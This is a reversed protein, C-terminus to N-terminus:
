LGKLESKHGMDPFTGHQDTLRRVQERLTMVVAELAAIEWAQNAETARLAWIYRMAIEHRRELPQLLDYIIAREDEPIDEVPWPTGTM